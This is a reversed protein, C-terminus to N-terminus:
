APTGWRDSELRPAGDWMRHDGPASSPSVKVIAPSRLIRRMQQPAWPHCIPPSLRTLLYLTILLPALINRIENQLYRSLNPLAPVPGLPLSLGGLVAQSSCYMAM